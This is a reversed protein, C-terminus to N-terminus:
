ATEKGGRRGEILIYSETQGCGTWNYIEKNNRREKWVVRHQAPETEEEDKGEDGM